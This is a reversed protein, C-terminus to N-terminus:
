FSITFHGAGVPLNMGLQTGDDERYIEDMIFM